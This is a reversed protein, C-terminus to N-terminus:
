IIGFLVAALECLILVLSVGVGIYSYQVRKKLLAIEDESKSLQKTLEQNKQLLEEISNSNAKIGNQIKDLRVTVSSLDNWIVDIDMVHEHSFLEYVKNYMEDIDFLHHLEDLKSVELQLANYREEISNYNLSLTNVTNSLTKRNEIEKNIRFNQVDIEAVVSSQKEVIGELQNEYNTLKETLDNVATAVEDLRAKESIYSEKVKDIKGSLSKIEEYIKARAEKNEKSVHNLSDSLSCIKEGWEDWMQDVDQLHAYGEMKKKFSKLVELTKVQDDVIKSIKKQADATAESNKETAKISILIASIYDKDLAELAKYVHGIQSIFAKHMKNIDILNDQVHSALTNLEEGTVRHETDIGKGLFFDGVGGFFGKKEDVMPLKYDQTAQESFIQLAKKESEFEHTKITDLTSNGESEQRTSSSM